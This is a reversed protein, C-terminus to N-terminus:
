HKRDRLMGKLLSTMYVFSEMKFLASGGIYIGAGTFFQIILILLDHIPLYKFWYVCIGMFVALLIGPLIDKLQESYKYDLLKKNPRSNVLMTIIEFLIMSYAIAMVSIQASIVVLLIGITKKIIEMKLFLDSRGLAKIANLNATDISGFLYIFCFIMQFPVAPLWNDTLLLRILPTGCFAFGMLLPATIYTSTKIARRTMAKVRSKNEQESSMAPLLVSNISADINSFLLNPYAKGREYFALDESTYVKGIILSRLNNYGTNLLASVLLKSSYSFLGKLREFSYLKRPRWEVSYWLIVTDVLNNFLSQAILAWTGFGAFALIIGLAAAGITGSLTAFFFKKFMMNRSIYASQVSKVGSIILTLSLVRTMATVDPNEYFKAIAPACFFLGGYIILCILMQTYFVTSFDTDDADKKQILASTFGCDVFVALINIFVNMLAVTGYDAPMLLRALIITVVMSVMKAGFREFFRWMFNKLVIKSNM